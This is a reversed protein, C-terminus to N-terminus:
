IENLKMLKEKRQIKKLWKHFEKYPKDVFQFLQDQYKETFDLDDTTVYMEIWVEQHDLFEMEEQLVELEDKNWQQLAGMITRAKSM